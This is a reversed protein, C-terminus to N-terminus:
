NQTFNPYDFIVDFCTIRRSISSFNITNIGFLQMNKNMLQRYIQRIKHLNSLEHVQLCDLLCDVSMNQSVQHFMEDIENVNHKVKFNM